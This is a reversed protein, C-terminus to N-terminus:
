CIVDIQAETLGETEELLNAICAERRIATDNSLNAGVIIGLAILLAVAGVIVVTGSAAMRSDLNPCFFWTVLGGATTAILIGLLIVLEAENIM